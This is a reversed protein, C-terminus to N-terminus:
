KNFYNCVVGLGFFLIIGAYVISSKGHHIEKNKIKYNNYHQKTIYEKLMTIETRFYDKLGFILTEDILNIEDYLDTLLKINSTYKSQIDVISLKKLISINSIIFDVPKTFNKYEILKKLCEIIKTNNKNEILTKALEDKLYKNEIIIKNANLIINYNQESLKDIVQEKKYIEFSHNTFDLSENSSNSSEDSSNSSEDDTPSYSCDPLKINVFKIPNQNEPNYIIEKIEEPNDEHYNNICYHKTEM